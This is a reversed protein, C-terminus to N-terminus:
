YTQNLQAGYRCVKGYRRLDPVVDDEAEKLLM